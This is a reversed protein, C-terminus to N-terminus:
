IMTQLGGDAQKRNFIERELENVMQDLKERSSKDFIQFREPAM